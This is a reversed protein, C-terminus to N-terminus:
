YKQIIEYRLQQIMDFTLLYCQYLSIIRANKYANYNPMRSIYSIKHYPAHYLVIFSCFNLFFM